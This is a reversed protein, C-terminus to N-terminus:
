CKKRSSYVCKDKFFPWERKLVFTKVKKFAKISQYDFDLLFEVHYPGLCDCSVLTCVGCWRNSVVALVSKTLQCLVSITLFEGLIESHLSRMLKLKRNARCLFLLSLVIHWMYELEHWM